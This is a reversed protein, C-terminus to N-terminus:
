WCVGKYDNGDVHGQELSVLDILVAQDAGIEAQLAARESLTLAPSVTPITTLIALALLRRVIGSLNGM